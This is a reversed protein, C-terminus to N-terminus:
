PLFDPYGQDKPSILPNEVPWRIGFAPDNWRVGREHDPAYFESMQYFVETDDEMTQFGHAFGEPVYLMRGSEATLEEAHWQKFTASRPRLDVVVDCITGRNCRVLKAEAHPAIQRHLGRLTGRKRNFSINCQVFRATLNHEEFERQCFTRVFFGREDERREPEIVRLGSLPTEIFIM